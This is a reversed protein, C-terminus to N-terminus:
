PAIGDAAGLQTFARQGDVRGVARRQFTLAFLGMLVGPMPKAGGRGKSVLIAQVDTGVVKEPADPLAHLRHGYKAQWDARVRRNLDALLQGVARLYLSDPRKETPAAEGFQDRHM